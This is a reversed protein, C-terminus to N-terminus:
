YRQGPQLAQNRGNVAFKTALTRREGEQPLFVAFHLHPGTTWGTDGSLAIVEGQAVEQGLTVLAGHKKLHVYEAMTGDAHMIVVLNNYDNCAPQACSRDHQEVIEIVRGGRAARVQTGVPMDFDLANQGHHSIRGQYGQSLVFRGSAEFPLAYPYDVDFSDILIDGMHPAYEYSFSWSLGQGRITTLPYSRSEPPVVITCPCKPDSTMNKLKTRLVISIPYIAENDARLEISHDPGKKEFVRIPLDQGQGLLPYLLFYCLWLVSLQITNVGTDVSSALVLTYTRDAFISPHYPMADRM